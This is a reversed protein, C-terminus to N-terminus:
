FSLWLEGFFYIILHYLQVQENYVGAFQFFGLKIISDSGRLWVFGAEGFVSGNSEYYLAGLIQGSVV